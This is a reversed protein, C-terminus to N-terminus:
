ASAGDLHFDGDAFHITQIDRVLLIQSSGDFTIQTFGSEGDTAFHADALNRGLLIADNDGGGGEITDNGSFTLIRISDNGEGGYILANGTSTRFIDDGDGGYLTDQGAGAVLIDDGEDGYLTNDGTFALFTNGNEDLVTAAVPGQGDYAGEYRGAALLDSDAGGYATDNGNVILTDNGEDGYFLHSGSGRDGYSNGGGDFSDAIIVDTGAGGSVTDSGSGAVIVDLGGEGFVTNHGDKLFVNDNDLGGYVTDHSAAESGAYLQDDGSGGYLLSSPGGEAALASAPAADTWVTLFDGDAGGYLTDAGTNGILTDRGDDGHLTTHGPGMGSYLVDDGGGGYITDNGAGGYLVDKGDNGQLVADQANWNVIYDDGTGGIVTDNAGSGALYINDVGIGGVIVQNGINSVTVLQPNLADADPAGEFILAAVSPAPTWSDSARTHFIEFAADSNPDETFTGSDELVRIVAERTADDLQPTHSALDARTSVVLEPDSEAAAVSPAAALSAARTAVAAAKSSVLDPKGDLDIDSVGAAATGTGTAPAFGGHGDGLLIPSSAIGATVTVIDLHGDGNVDALVVANPVSAVQYTVPASLGGSDEALEVKIGGVLPDITVIDLRGDGDLDGQAQIAPSLGAGLVDVVGPLGTDTRPGRSTLADGETMACRPTAAAAAPHRM